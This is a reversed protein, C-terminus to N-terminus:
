SSQGSAPGVGNAAAAAAYQQMAMPHMGMKVLDAQTMPIAAPYGRGYLAAYFQPVQGHMQAAHLQSLYQQQQQQQVAAAQQQQQQHQAMAVAQQQAAQVQVQQAKVVCVFFFFFFFVVRSSSSHSANQVLLQAILDCSLCFLRALFSSFISFFHLFRVQERARLESAFAEQLKNSNQRVQNMESELAALRTKLDENEKERKSIERQLDAESTAAIVEKFSQLDAETQELRKSVEFNTVELQFCQDTLQQVTAATEVHKARAHELKRLLKTLETQDSLRKETM